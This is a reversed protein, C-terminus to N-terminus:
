WTEGLKSEKKKSDLRKKRMLTEKVSKKPMMLKEDDDLDDDSDDSIMNMSMDDVEARKRMAKPIKPSKQMKDAVNQGARTIGSGIGSAARKVSDLGYGLTESATLYMGTSVRRVTDLKTQEGPITLEPGDSSEFQSSIDKDEETDKDMENLVVGNREMATTM